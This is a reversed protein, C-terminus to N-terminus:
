SQGELVGLSAFVERIKTRARSARVRVNGPSIGLREGAEHAGLGEVDMLMYAERHSESVLELASRLLQARQSVLVTDEPTRDRLRAAIERLNGMAREGRKQKRWHKRVLNTAIGRLWAILPVHGDYRDLAGFARAFTEQTLDEALHTDRSLYAVHRLVPAYNDQYLRTWAQRSGGKAREVLARERDDAVVGDILTLHSDGASPTTVTM